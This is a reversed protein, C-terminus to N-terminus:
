SDWTSKATPTDFSRWCGGNDQVMRVGNEMREATAHGLSRMLDYWEPFQADLNNSQTVDCSQQDFRDRLDEFQSSIWAKVLVPPNPLKNAQAKAFSLFKEREEEPLKELKQSLSIHNINPRSDPSDGSTNNKNTTQPKLNASPTFKNVNKAVNNVSATVKKVIATSVQKVSKVFIDFENKLKAVARRFQHISIDFIQMVEDRDIVIKWGPAFKVKIYFELALALPMKGQKYSDIVEAQTLQYFQTM